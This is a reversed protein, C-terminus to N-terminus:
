FLLVFVLCFSESIGKGLMQSNSPVPLEKITSLTEPLLYKYKEQLRKLAAEEKAKKDASKEKKVRRGFDDFGEEDIEVTAASARNQRENFGGGAGDRGEDQVTKFIFNVFVCLCVKGSAAFPKPTGCM